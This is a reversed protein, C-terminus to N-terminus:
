AASQRDIYRQIEAERWRKMRMGFTIPKPFATTRELKWLTTRGVKMLECVETTSLLAGAQVPKSAETM